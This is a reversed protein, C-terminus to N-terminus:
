DSRLGFIRRLVKNEFVKLRSREERLTLAWTERGYSVVPLMEIKINKCLLHSRIM